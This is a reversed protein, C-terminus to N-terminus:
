SQEIVGVTIGAKLMTNKEGGREKATEIVGVIGETVSKSLCCM